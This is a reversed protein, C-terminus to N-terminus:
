NSIMCSAGHVLGYFPIVASMVWDSTDANAKGCWIWMWIPGGPIWFTLALLGVAGYGITTVSGKLLAM